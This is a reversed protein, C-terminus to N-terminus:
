EPKPYLLSLVTSCPFSPPRGGLLLAAAQEPISSDWDPSAAQFTPYASAPSAAAATISTSNHQWSDFFYLGHRVITQAHHEIIATLDQLIYFLIYILDLAIPVQFCNMAQEILNLKIRATGTHVPVIFNVQRAIRQILVPLCDRGLWLRSSNGAKKLAM